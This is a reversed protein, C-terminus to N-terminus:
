GARSRASGRTYPQERRHEHQHRCHRRICSVVYHLMTGGVALFAAASSGIRLLPEYDGLGLTLWTLFGVIGAVLLVMAYPLPSSHCETCFKM